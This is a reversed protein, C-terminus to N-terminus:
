KKERIEENMLVGLEVIKDRAERKGDEISKFEFSTLISGEIDKVNCKFDQLNIEIFVVKGTNTMMLNSIECGKGNDQYSIRTM